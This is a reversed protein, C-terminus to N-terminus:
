FHIVSINCSLYLLRVNTCYRLQVGSAAFSGIQAPLSCFALAFLERFCSWHCNLYHLGTIQSGLWNPHSKHDNLQRTLSTWFCLHIINPFIAVYLSSLRLLTNEWWSRWATVSTRGQFWVAQSELDRPQEDYTLNHWIDFTLRPQDAWLPGVHRPSCGLAPLLSRPETAVQLLGQGGGVFTMKPNWPLTFSHNYLSDGQRRWNNRQCRSLSTRRGCRGRTLGLRLHSGSM